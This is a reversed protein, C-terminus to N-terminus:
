KKLSNQLAERYLQELKKGVVATDFDKTYQKGWTAAQSRLGPERIYKELLNALAQSDRPSFLLEPRPEMVSAYGPNDGALVASHGSAMAELLVIGFSEGGSSPFVSIDASAYYRPKDEESVFGVMEVINELGHSDIYSQLQAAEPGKGCIVVEFEPLDAIEALKAAAELLAQCGKRPVLRNLFLITVKKNKYRPFAKAKHFRGYDFTNPLVPTDIKFTRRAFDAAASSVAVVRYFRRLSPRLWFGLLYNGATVMWSYAAIHFTGVIATRRQDAMIVLPQAMLPHHPTQVHLIDFKEEALLKKLKRRDAWLPITTRNGNFRVSINRSLSHINPLDHSKTEGVLYHVDHGQSRLWEGVSIVYQQVGDPPDLSTDLVLGIKLRKNAM